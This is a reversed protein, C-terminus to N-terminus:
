AKDGIRALMDLLAIKYLPLTSDDLLKSFSYSIQLNYSAVCIDWINGVPWISKWVDPTAADGRRM